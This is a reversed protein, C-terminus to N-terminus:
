ASPPVSDAAPAQAPASVKKAIRSALRGLIVAAAVSDEVIGEVEDDALDFKENVHALLDAKGADDLAKLQELAKPAGMVAAPAKLIPDVLNGADKLTIKGDDALSKDVGMGISLGFDLVDKLEKNQEEM